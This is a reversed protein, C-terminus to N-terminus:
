PGAMVAYAMVAYAMAALADRGFGDRGNSVMALAGLWRPGAVVAYAMAVLDRGFGDRGRLWLWWSTAAM